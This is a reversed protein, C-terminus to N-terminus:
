RSGWGGGRLKLFAIMNDVHMQGEDPHSTVVTLTWCQGEEQSRMGAEVAISALAKARGRLHGSPLSTIINPTSNNSM